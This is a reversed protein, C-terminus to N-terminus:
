TIKLKNAPQEQVNKHSTESDQHISQKANNDQRKTLRDNIQQAFNQGVFGKEVLQETSVKDKNLDYVNLSGGAVLGIQPSTYLAEEKGGHGVFTVKQLNGRKYSEMLRDRFEPTALEKISYNKTADDLSFPYEKRYKVMEFKGKEVNFKRKAWAEYQNGEKDSFANYVPRGAL